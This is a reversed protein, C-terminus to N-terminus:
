PQQKLLIQITREKDGLQSKLQEVQTRLHENEKACDALTTFKNKGGSITGVVNGLNKEQAQIITSAESTFAEGEGTLLWHASVNRFRIVIKELFDSSPKNRGNIYNSTTTQKEGVATGFARVSEALSEALFKVRQTIPEQEM